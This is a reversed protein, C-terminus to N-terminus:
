GLIVRWVMNDERLMGREKLRDYVEMYTFKQQNDPDTKEHPLYFEFYFECYSIIEIYRKRALKIAKDLRNNIISEPM